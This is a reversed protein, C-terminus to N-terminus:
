CTAYTVIKKLSCQHSCDVSLQCHSSDVSPQCNTKTVSPVAQRYICVWLHQEDSLMQSGIVACIVEVVKWQMIQTLEDGM